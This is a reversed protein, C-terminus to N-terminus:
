SRLRKKVYDAIDKAVVPACAQLADGALEAELAPTLKGEIGAAATASATLRLVQGPIEVVTADCTVEILTSENDVVQRLSRLTVKVGLGATVGGRKMRVASGLADRLSQDVASQLRPMQGAPALGAVDRVEGLELDLVRKQLARVTTTAQARVAADPDDVCLTAADLAIPDGLTSLAVLTAVRVAPAPDTLLPALLAAAEADRTKVVGTIALLRAKLSTSHLGARLSPPVAARGAGSLLLVWVVVCWGGPRRREQPRLKVEFLRTAM